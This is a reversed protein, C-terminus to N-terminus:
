TIAARQAVYWREISCPNKCGSGGGGRGSSEWVWCSSTYYSCPHMHTTGARLPAHDHAGRERTHPENMVNSPPILRQMCFPHLRDEHSPPEPGVLPTDFASAPAVSHPSVCCCQSSGNGQVCLTEIFHICRDHLAFRSTQGHARSDGTELPRKRGPGDSLPPMQTCHGGMACRTGGGGWKYAV